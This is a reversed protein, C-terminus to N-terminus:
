RSVTEIICIVEDYTDVQATDITWNTVRAAKLEPGSASGGPRFKGSSSCCSFSAVIFVLKVKVHFLINCKRTEM